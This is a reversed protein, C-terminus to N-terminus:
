ASRIISRAQKEEDSNIQHNHASLAHERAHRMVDDDTDGKAVYNCNAEGAEKCSLTRM